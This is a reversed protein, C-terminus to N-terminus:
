RANCWKVSDFWDMSHAPHDDAKGAGPQAFGYGHNTAWDYVSRWQGLSVLNVDMYFASVTVAVTPTADHGGDLNDGMTFVGAPILALGTPPKFDVLLNTHVVNTTPIRVYDTWNTGGPLSKVTQISYTAGPQANSWVMTGDPRLATIASAGPGSIRFFRAAQGVAPQVDALCALVLFLWQVIAKVAPELKAKRVEARSEKCDAKCNFGRFV